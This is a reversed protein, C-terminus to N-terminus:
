QYQLNKITGVVFCTSGATGLDTFSFEIRRTSSHQPRDLKNFHRYLTVSHVTQEAKRIIPVKAESKPRPWVGRATM